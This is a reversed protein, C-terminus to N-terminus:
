TSTALSLQATKELKDWITECVLFDNTNTELRTKPENKESVYFNNDSGHFFKKDVDDGIFLYDISTDEVKGSKKSKEKELYKLFEDYTKLKNSDKIMSRDIMMGKHTSYNTAWLTGDMAVYISLGVEQKMNDPLSNKDIFSLYAAEITDGNINIPYFYLGCIEKSKTTYYDYTKTKKEGYGLSNGVDIYMDIVPSDKKMITKMYNSVIFNTKVYERLSKTM